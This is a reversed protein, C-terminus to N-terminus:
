PLALSMTRANEVVDELFARRLGADHITKARATVRERAVELAAKAGPADGSAALARVHALRIAAEGTATKGAADLAAM